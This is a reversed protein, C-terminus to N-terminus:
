FLYNIEFYFDTLLYVSKLFDIESGPFFHQNISILHENVIIVIILFLFIPM